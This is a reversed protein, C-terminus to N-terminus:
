RVELNMTMFAPDTTGNGNQGVVRLLVDTRAAADIAFFATTQLGATIPVTPGTGGNLNTWSTGGNTSYQVRLTSGAAGSTTINAQFRAETANSLNVALRRNTAGDFETTALPQNTWVEAAGPALFTYVASVNGSTGTTKWVAAGATSDMLVYAVDTSTNIWMTGVGYGDAVDDNVTPNAAARHHQTELKTGTGADSIVTTVNIIQNGSVSTGTNTAEISIGTTAGNIQNGIITNNSSVGAGDRIIIANNFNTGNASIANGIITSSDVNEYLNIGNTSTNNNTEVTNNIVMVDTANMLALGLSGATFGINRARNSFISSASVGTFVYCTEQAENVINESIISDRIGNGYGFTQGALFADGDFHVGDVWRNGATDNNVINRSVTLRQATAASGDTMVIGTRTGSKVGISQVIMDMVKVEIGGNIAVGHINPGVQIKFNRVIVNSRPSTGNALGVQVVANDATTGGTWTGTQARLITGPGEGVLEINDNNILIENTLDHTGILLKIVGGNAGLSNIAAQINMGPSVLITRDPVTTINGSTVVNSGGVIVIPWDVMKLATTSILDIVTFKSSATNLGSTGVSRVLTGTGSSQSCNQLTVTTVPPTGATSDIVVKAGGAIFDVKNFLLASNSSANFKVNLGSVATIASDVNITLDEFTTERVQLQGSGTISITTLSRDSGILRVNELDVSATVPYSGPDIWIECGSITNCYAAAGAITTYDRGTPGVTVIKTATSTTISGQLPKWISGNWSYTGSTCATPTCGPAVNDIATLEVIRGTGGAGLGGAGGPMAAVNEVRATTLQNNTLDLNDSIEFRSNSISWRITKGLAAGFQIIIDNSSENDSNLLISNSEVTAFDDNQFLITASAPM